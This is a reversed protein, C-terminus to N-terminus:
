LGDTCPVPNYDCAVLANAVVHSLLLRDTACFYAREHEGRLAIQPCFHQSLNEEPAESSQAPQRFPPAVM